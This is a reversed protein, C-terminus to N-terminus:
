LGERIQPPVYLPVVHTHEHWRPSIYIESRVYGIRLNVFASGSGSERAKFPGVPVGREWIGRLEEGYFYTDM